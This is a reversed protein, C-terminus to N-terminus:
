GFHKVSMEAFKNRLKDIENIIQKRLELAEDLKKQFQELAEGGNVLDIGNGIVSAANSAATAFYETRDAGETFYAGALSTAFALCSKIMNLKTQDRENEFQRMAQKIDSILAEVEILDSQFKKGCEIIQEISKDIDEEDILKVESQHETFKKKIKDLREQFEFNYKKSDMLTKSLHLVSYSVNSISLGLIAQKVMKNSFTAKAKENFNLENFVIDREEDYDDSFYNNNADNFKKSIKQLKEYESNYHFASFFGNKDEKKDEKGKEEKEEKKYIQRVEKILENEEEKSLGKKLIEEIAKKEEQNRFESKIDGFVESFKKIFGPIMVDITQNQSTDLNCELTKNCLNQPAEHVNGQCTGVCKILEDFDGYDAQIYNKMRQALTRIPRTNIIIEFYDRFINDWKSPDIKKKKLIENQEKEDKANKLSYLINTKWLVLVCDYYEEKEYYEFTLERNDEFKQVLQKFSREKKTNYHYKTNGEFLQYFEEDELTMMDDLCDRFIKYDNKVLFEALKKKQPLDKYKSLGITMLNAELDEIKPVPIPVPAEEDVNLKENIEKNNSKNFLRPCLCGM